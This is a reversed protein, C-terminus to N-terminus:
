PGHVREIIGNREFFEALQRGVARHGIPKMHCDDVFNERGKEGLEAASPVEGGEDRRGDPRNPWFLDYLDLHYVDGSGAHREAVQRLAERYKMDKPHTMGDAYRNYPLEILVVQMDAARALEIIRSLNEDYDELSVRNVEHAADQENRRYKILNLLNKRLVLFLNSKYLLGRAVSLPYSDCMHAKDPAWAFENDQYGLAVTVIDPAYRLGVNKFLSLGQYSSYGSQAGQIVEIKVDKNARRLEDELVRPYTRPPSTGAGGLTRSDGLAFIRVVGEPKEQPLEDNVLGLSNVKFIRAGPWPTYTAHIRWLSVPDPRVQNIPHYYVAISLVVELIVFFALAVLFSRARGLKDHIRKLLPSRIRRAIVRQYVQYLIVLVFITGLCIFDIEVPQSYPYDNVYYTDAPPITEAGHIFHPPAGPPGGPGPSERPPLSM